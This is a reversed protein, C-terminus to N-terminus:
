EIGAPVFPVLTAPVQGWHCRSVVTHLTLTVHPGAGLSLSVDCRARNPSVPVQGWHCPSMGSHGRCMWSWLPTVWSQPELAALPFAGPASDSGARPSPPRGSIEDGVELGTRGASGQGAMVGGAPHISDLKPLLAGLFPFWSSSNTHASGRRVSGWERSRTRCSGMQAGWSSNRSGMPSIKEADVHSTKWPGPVAETLHQTLNTFSSFPVFSPSCPRGQLQWFM